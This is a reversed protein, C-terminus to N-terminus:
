NEPDPGLDNVTREWQIARIEEPWSNKIYALVAEIQEDDLIGAYAPMNSTGIDGLRQGGEEIVEQLVRDSHHWTHGGEDHPPARFSGDDNRSKWDAEGELNEGHCVACYQSYVSQGMEVMEPDPTPAAPLATTPSQPGPGNATCSSLLLVLLSFVWGVCLRNQPGRKLRSLSAGVNEKQLVPM